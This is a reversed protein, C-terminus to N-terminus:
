PAGPGRAMAEELLPLLADAHRQSTYGAASQWAGRRLKQYHAESRFMRGLADRLNGAAHGRWDALHGNEGERLWQPIGGVAFGVSPCGYRGAEMGGKGFPEPWRSPMAFFHHQAYAAALQEGSQWGTFAVTLLPNRSRLDAARSEWLARDRGEGAFTLHMPKRQDQTWLAAAELLEIGGKVAEIRGAFIGKVPGERCSLEQPGELPFQQAPFCCFPIVRINEGPFGHRMYEQQMHGAHTVLLRYGRLREQHSKEQGYLRLMTLPNRGGCGRPLYLGLCAPGLTRFCPEAQPFLHRKLGSICTGYFNHAFYVAPYNRCLSEEWDAPIRGHAYVVGPKWQEAEALSRLLRGGAPIRIAGRDRPEDSQALLAV